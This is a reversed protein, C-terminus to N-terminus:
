TEALSRWYFERISFALSPPLELQHNAVMQRIKEPSRVTIAPLEPYRDSTSFNEWEELPMGLYKELSVIAVDLDGADAVFTPGGEDVTHWLFEVEVQAPARLTVHRLYGPLEDVARRDVCVAGRKVAFWQLIEDKTM